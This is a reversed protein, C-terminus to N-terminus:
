DGSACLVFVKLVAIYLPTFIEAGIYIAYTAPPFNPSFSTPDYMLKYMKPQMGNGREKRRLLFVLFTSNLASQLFLNFQSGILFLVAARSIHVPKLLRNIHASLSLLHCSKCIPVM